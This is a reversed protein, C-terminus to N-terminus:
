GEGHNGGRPARGTWVDTSALGLHDRVAGPTPLPAGSLIAALVWGQVCPWLDSVQPTDFGLVRVAVRQWGALLVEPFLGLCRRAGADLLLLYVARVNDRHPGTALAMCDVLAAAPENLNAPSAAKLDAHYLACARELVAALL